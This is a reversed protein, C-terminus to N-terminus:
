ILNLFEVELIQQARLEKEMRIQQIRKIKEQQKMIKIQEKQKRKEEAAMIAQQKKAEKAVRAQEQKQLKRLLKIQAAQRAIEQAQLKRLLKADTNEIFEAGGVNPPRGKRRRIRSEERARQRDPNPPRGRRGEMARIRPIVDEEKLLCWQM